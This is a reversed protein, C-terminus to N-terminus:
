KLVFEVNAMSWAAFNSGAGADVLWQRAESSGLSQVHGDVFVANMRNVHRM